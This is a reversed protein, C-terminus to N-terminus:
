TTGTHSSSSTSSTTRGRVLKEFNQEMRSVPHPRVGAEELVRNTSSGIVSGITYESLESLKDYKIEGHKSKLYYLLFRGYGYLVGTLAKRDEESYQRLAGLMAVYKGSRLSSISRVMPQFEFVAEINSEKFAASVLDVGFGRGKGPIPDKHMFGPYKFTVVTVAEGAHATSVLGLTLIVLINTLIALM